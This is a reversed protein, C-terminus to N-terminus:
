ITAVDASLVQDLQIEVATTGLATPEVRELTPELRRLMTAAVGFVRESPTSTATMGMLEQSAAKM